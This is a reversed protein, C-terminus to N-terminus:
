SGHALRARLWKEAAAQDSFMAVEFQGKIRARLAAASDASMADANDLHAWYRLGCQVAHPVWERELWDLSSDWRGVLHRNDNLVARLRQKQLWDLYALAGTAVNGSTPYGTWDAHVWPDRDPQHISLYVKGTPSRLEELLM